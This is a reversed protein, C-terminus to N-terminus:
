TLCFVAYSIVYPSQLESTHEESREGVGASELDERELPEPFDLFGADFKLTVDVAAPAHQRGFLGDVDLPREAGIDRHREVVHNGASRIFRRRAISQFPRHAPQLSALFPM